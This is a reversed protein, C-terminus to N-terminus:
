QAVVEGRERRAKADADVSDAWADGAGGTKGLTIPRQAGTKEGLKLVDDNAQVTALWTDFGDETGRVSLALAKDDCYKSEAVKAAAPTLKTGVLQKIELRRNKGLLLATTKLSAAMAPTEEPPKVDGPKEEGGGDKLKKIEEALAALQTTMETIKGRLVVELEADDKGAVPLGLSEVLSALSFAVPKTMKKAGVLSAAIPKFGDMGTVVPYDTLAVHTIPWEYGRESPPSYISVQTDAFDDAAKQDRFEIKGFLASRGKSDPKVEASLLKGRRKEPDVTHDVPLPIDIGKADFDTVQKQWHKLRDETISFKDGDETEFEGVYILEKERVPRDAVVSAVIGSRDLDPVRYFLPQKM